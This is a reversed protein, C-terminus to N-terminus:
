IHLFLNCFRTTSALHLPQQLRFCCLSNSLPARLHRPKASPCTTTIARHDRPRAVILLRPLRLRPASAPTWPLSPWPMQEMMSAMSVVDVNRRGLAVDVHGRGVQRAETSPKQRRGRCLPCNLPNPFQQDSCQSLPRNWPVNGKDHVAVSTISAGMMNLRDFAM